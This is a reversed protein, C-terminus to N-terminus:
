PAPGLAGALVVPGAPKRPDGSGGQNELSLAFASLAAPDGADPVRVEAHGSADGRVVGLSKPGDPLIAWLEYDSGQPTVLDDFAIVARRSAPDYTARVRPLKVGGSVPALEAVRAGPSAALSAWAREIALDREAQAIRRRAGELEGRLRDAAQWSVVASVALVLAATALGWVPWAPRARKPMEIVRRPAPAATVSRTGASARDRPAAAAEARVREMVKAKLGPGPRAAPASAALAEIGGSLEFLARECVACGEALHRELELRDAEDISGLVKAACLDLHEERHPTV